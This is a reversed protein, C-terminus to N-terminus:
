FTARFLRLTDLNMPINYKRALGVFTM